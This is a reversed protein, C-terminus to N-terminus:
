KKSVKFFAYKTHVGVKYKEDIRKKLTCVESEKKAYTIKVIRIYIKKIHKTLIKKTKHYFNKRNKQKAYILFFKIKKVIFRSM